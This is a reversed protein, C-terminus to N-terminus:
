TYLIPAMECEKLTDARKSEFYITTADYFVIDVQMNFINTNIEFLHKELNSKLKALVDLSRYVHQLAIEENNIGFYEAANEYTKLKSRPNMFRDLILLRLINQFDFEVNINQNRKETEIFSDIEFREWLKEIVRVGGWQYRKLEKVTPLLTEQIPLASNYESLIKNLSLMLKKVEGSEVLDDIAGLSGIVKHSTRGDAYIGKCIQLYKKKTTPSGKIRVFVRNIYM